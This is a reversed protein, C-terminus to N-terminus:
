EGLKRGCEPCYNLKYWNYDIQGHKSKIVITVLFIRDKKNIYEANIAKLFEIDDCCECM